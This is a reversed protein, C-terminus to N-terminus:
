RRWWGPAPQLQPQPQLREGADSWLSRLAPMNLYDLSPLVLDAGGVKWRPTYRGPVCIVKMSANIAAEVGLPNSDLDICVAPHLALTEACALLIMPDPKTGGIMDAAVIVDFADDIELRETIDYVMEKTTMTTGIAMRLGNDRFMEVAHYLGPMPELNEEILNNFIAQEEQYITIPSQPIGYRRYLYEAVDSPRKGLMNQLEYDDLELEFRKLYENWAQVQYPESDIMLGDLDFIVAEFM